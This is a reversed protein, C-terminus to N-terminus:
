ATDALAMLPESVAEIMLFNAYGCFACDVSVPRSTHIFVKGAKIQIQGDVERAVLRNCKECDIDSARRIRFNM